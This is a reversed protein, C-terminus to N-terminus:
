LVLMTISPILTTAASMRERDLENCSLDLEKIMRNKRLINRIFPIIDISVSTKKLVLQNLTRNKELAISLEQIGSNKIQNSSLDIRFASLMFSSVIDLKFICYYVHIFM